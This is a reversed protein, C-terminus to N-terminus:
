PGSRCQLYNYIAMPVLKLILDMRPSDTICTNIKGEQKKSPLLSLWKTCFCINCVESCQLNLVPLIESPLRQHYKTELKAGVLCSEGSVQCLMYTCVSAFARKLTLKTSFTESWLGIVVGVHHNMRGGNPRRRQLERKAAPSDSLYPLCRWRASRIHRIYIRFYDSTNRHHLRKQGTVPRRRSRSQLLQRGNAWKQHWIGTKGMCSKIWRKIEWPEFRWQWTSGITKKVTRSRGWKLIVQNIWRIGLAAVQFISRRRRFRDFHGNTVAFIVSRQNFVDLRRNKVNQANKRALVLRRECLLHMTRLQNCRYFLFSYISDQLRLVRIKSTAASPYSRTQSIGFPVRHTARVVSKVAMTWTVTWGGQVVIVRTPKVRLQENVRENLLRPQKAAIRAVYKEGLVAHVHEVEPTVPVFAGVLAVETSLEEFVPEAERSVKDATRVLWRGVATSLLLTM